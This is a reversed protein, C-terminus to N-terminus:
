RTAITAAIPTSAGSAVCWIQLDSPAAGPPWYMSSQPPVTFTGLGNASVGASYGCSLSNGGSAAGNAIFVSSWLPPLNPNAGMAPVILEPTTGVATVHGSGLPGSPSTLDITKMQARAAAPALALLAALLFIRLNM